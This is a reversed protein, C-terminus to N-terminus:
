KASAILVEQTSVPGMALEQDKPVSPVHYNLKLHLDALYLEKIYSTFGHREIKLNSPKDMDKRDTSSSMIFCGGNPGYLTVQAPLATSKLTFTYDGAPLTASGWRAEQPLTFSGQFVNQASAPSAAVCAAILGIAIIATIRTFKSNM